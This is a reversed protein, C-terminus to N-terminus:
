IDLTIINTGPTHHISAGLPFVLGTGACWRLFTEHQGTDDYTLPAISQGVSSRPWGAMTVLWLSVWTVMYSQELLEIDRSLFFLRLFLLLLRWSLPLLPLLPWLREPSHHCHDPIRLVSTQGPPLLLLRPDEDVLRTVDRWSGSLSTGLTDWSSYTEVRLLGQSQTHESHLQHQTVNLLQTVIVFVHHEGFHLSSNVVGHDHPSDHSCFVFMWGLMVQVNFMFMIVFSSLVVANKSIKRACDLSKDRNLSNLELFELSLRAESPANWLVALRAKTVAEELELLEWM